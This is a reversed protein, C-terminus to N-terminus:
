NKSKWVLLQDLMTSIDKQHYFRDYTIGSCNVLYPEWSMVFM